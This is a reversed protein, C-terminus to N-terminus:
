RKKYKELVYDISPQSKNNHNFMFLIIDANKALDTFKYPQDFRADVIKVERFNYAFIESTPNQMSDKLILISKNNLAKENVIRYYPLNHTYIDNYGPRPKTIGPGILGQRDVPKDGEEDMFYLFNEAGDIEITVPRDKDRYINSFRRNLDGQYKKDLYHYSFYAQKQFSDIDGYDLMRELLLDIAEKAGRVNWHFDTKYWKEELKDLKRFPSALDVLRFNDQGLKILLEKAQALNEEGKKNEVFSYKEPFAYNKTPLLVYYIKKDKYKKLVEELMYRVQKFNVPYDETFLWQDKSIFIDRSYRKGLGKHILSKLKLFEERKPFQDVLYKETEEITTKLDLIDLNPKQQLGRGETKSIQQDELRLGLAPFLTIMILFPIIIILSKKKKM